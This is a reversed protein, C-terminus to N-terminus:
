MMLIRDCQLDDDAEFTYGSVLKMSVVLPKGLTCHGAGGRKSAPESARKREGWNVLRGGGGSSCVTVM